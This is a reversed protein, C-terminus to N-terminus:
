LLLYWIIAIVLQQEAFSTMIVLEVSGIDYSDSCQMIDIM